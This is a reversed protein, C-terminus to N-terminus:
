RIAGRLLARLVMWGVLGVRIMASDSQRPQAAVEVRAAQIAPALVAPAPLKRWVRVWLFHGILGALLLGLAVRSIASTLPVVLFGIAPISAVVLGAKGAYHVQFQDEVLNYDGKTRFALRGDPERSIGQIRHTLTPYPAQASTYSIVDGVALKEPDAPMVIVVSGIPIAPQMSDSMVTYTAYLGTRPLLMLLLVVVGVLTGLALALVTWVTRPVGAMLRVPVKVALVAAAPLRPTLAALSM